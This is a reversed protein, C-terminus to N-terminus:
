INSGRNKLEINSISYIYKYVEGACGEIINIKIKLKSITTSTAALEGILENGEDNKM